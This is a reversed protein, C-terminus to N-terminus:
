GMPARWMTRLPPGDPLDLVSRVRYGHRLYLDRHQCDLLAGPHSEEIVADPRCARDFADRIVLEGIAYTM